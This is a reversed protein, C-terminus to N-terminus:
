LDTPILIQFHFHFLLKKVQRSGVACLSLSLSLFPYGILKEQKCNREIRRVVNSRIKM